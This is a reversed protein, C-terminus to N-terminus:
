LLGLRNIDPYAGRALDDGLTLMALRLFHEHPTADPYRHRIGALALEYTAATWASVIDAKECPSMARWAEIQRLEVERDTDLALPPRVTFRNDCAEELGSGRIGSGPDRILAEGELM